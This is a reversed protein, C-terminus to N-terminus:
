KKWGRWISAIASTVLSTAPPTSSMEEVQENEPWHLHEPEADEGEEGGSGGGGEERGEEEWLDEWQAQVSDSRSWPEVRGIAPDDAAAALALAHLAALGRASPEARIQARACVAGGSLRLRRCVGRRSGSYTELCESLSVAHPLRVDLTWALLATLQACLGLAATARHAAITSPPSGVCAEKNQNVSIQIHSDDGEIDIYPAVIHLQPRPPPEQEADNGVFEMDEISDSPDYSIYVPFIYRNLQRIRSRRLEALNQALENYTNIRKQVDFQQKQAHEGLSAVRKQYRPLKLRLEKNSNELEILKEKLVKVNNRRQDIALRLLELKDKSRKTETVLVDKKLKPTLLKDCIDLIHQRNVKLRMIKAQKDAFRDSYPLSSHVFNGNRVCDACYFNRKVTFCLPCKTYHGDSEISSVRFDRPAQNESLYSTAM